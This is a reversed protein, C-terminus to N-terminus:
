RRWEVPIAQFGFGATMEIDLYALGTSIVLDDHCGSRANFSINGAASYSVEFEVFQDKLVKYDHCGKSVQLECSELAAALRTCLFSKGIRYHQYEVERMAEGATIHAGVLKGGKGRM